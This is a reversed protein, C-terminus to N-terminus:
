DMLKTGPPLEYEKLVVADSYSPAFDEDEPSVAVCLALFRNPDEGAFPALSVVHKGGFPDSFPLDVGNVAEALYSGLTRGPDGFREMQNLSSTEGLIRAKRTM